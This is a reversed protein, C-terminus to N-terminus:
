RGALERVRLVLEPDAELFVLKTIEELMQRIRKPDPPVERTQIGVLLDIAIRGLLRARPRDIGLAAIADVVHRERRKDVRAIVEAVDPTSRGWARIASESTHPLNVGMETLTTIRLTPDPQTKSLRILRDSHEREWYALLQEVFGPMGGFHHYFSGKTVELRECLSAITMAQSGQEGLVALAERFYDDATLREVRM